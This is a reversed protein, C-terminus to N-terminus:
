QYVCNFTQYMKRFYFTDNAFCYIGQPFFVVFAKKAYQQLIQTLAQHVQNPLMPSVAVLQQFLQWQSITAAPSILTTYNNLVFFDKNPIPSAISSVVSYVDAATLNCVTCMIQSQSTIASSYNLSQRIVDQITQYPKRVLLTLVPDNRVLVSNTGVIMLLQSNGVYKNILSIDIGLYAPFDVNDFYM